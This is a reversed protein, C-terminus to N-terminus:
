SAQSAAKKSPMFHSHRIKSFKEYAEKDEIPDILYAIQRSKDLGLDYYANRPDRQFSELNLSTIQLQPCKEIKPMLIGIRRLGPRSQFRSISEVQSVEYRLMNREDSQVLNLLYSGEEIIRKNHCLNMASYDLFERTIRYTHNFISKNILRRIAQVPELAKRWPMDSSLSAFVSAISLINVDEDYTINKDLLGLQEEIDEVIEEHKSKNRYQEQLAQLKNKITQMSPYNNSLQAARIPHHHLLVNHKVRPDLSRNHSIMLYSIIPHQQIYEYEQISLRKGTPIKMRLYSIDCLFASLMLASVSELMNKYDTQGLTQMGRTKMAMAVAALKVMVKSLYNTDLDECLEVINLIGNMADPQSKFDTFVKDLVSSSKKLTNMGLSSVRLVELMEANARSMSLAHEKSLLKADSLEPIPEEKKRPSAKIKIEDESKYYIGQEVFRMVRDIDTQSAEDKKHILIQGRKNYFDVPISCKERFRKIAEESFDFKKLLSM